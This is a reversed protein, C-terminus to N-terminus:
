ALGSPASLAPGRVGFLRQSCVEARDAYVGTRVRGRVCRDPSPRARLAAINVEAAALEIWAAGVGIVQDRVLHGLVVPLQDNLGHHAVSKLGREGRETRLGSAV